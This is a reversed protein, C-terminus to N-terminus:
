KGNYFTLGAIWDEMALATDIITVSKGTTLSATHYSTSGLEINYQILPNDPLSIM